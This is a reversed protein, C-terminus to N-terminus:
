LGIQKTRIYFWNVDIASRRTSQRNNNTAPQQINAMLYSDVNWTVIKPM